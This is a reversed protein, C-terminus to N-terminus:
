PSAVVLHELDALEAKFASDWQHHAAFMLAADLYTRTGGSREGHSLAVDAVRLPRSSVLRLSPAGSAGGSPRAPAPSPRRRRALPTPDGLPRDEPSNTPDGLPRDEPSNSARGQPRLRRTFERPEPLSM